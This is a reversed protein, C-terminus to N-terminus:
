GKQVADKSAVALRVLMNDANTKLDNPKVPLIHIYGMEPQGPTSHTNMEVLLWSSVGGLQQFFTKLLGDRVDESDCLKVAIVPQIGNGNDVFDIKISSQM